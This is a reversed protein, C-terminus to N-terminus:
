KVFGVRLGGQLKNRSLFNWTPLQAAEFRHTVDDEIISEIGATLFELTDNVLVKM